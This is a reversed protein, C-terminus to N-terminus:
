ILKKERALWEPMEVDCPRHTGIPDAAYKLVRKVQSRPVWVNFPPKHPPERNFLWAGSTSTVLWLRLTIM